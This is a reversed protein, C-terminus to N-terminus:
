LRPITLFLTQELANCNNRYDHTKKKRNKEEERLSKDTLSNIKLFKEPQPSPNFVKLVKQIYCSSRPYCKM